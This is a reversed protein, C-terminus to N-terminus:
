AIKWDTFTLRGGDIRKAWDPAECADADGVFTWWEAVREAPIVYDHGSDDSIVTYRQQKV